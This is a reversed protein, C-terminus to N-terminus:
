KKKFYKNFIGKNVYEFPKNTNSTDDRINLMYLNNYDDNNDNNFKNEYYNFTPIEQILSHESDDIINTSSRRKITTIESKELSNNKSNNFTDEEFNFVSQNNNKKNKSYNNLINGKIKPIIILKSSKSSISNNNKKDFIINTIMTSNNSDSKNSISNNKRKKESFNRQCIEEQCYYQKKYDINLIKNKYKNEKNRKENKKLIEEKSIKNKENEFTKIKSNSINNKNILINCSLNKKMFKNNNRGKYQTINPKFSPKLKKQLEMLKENKIKADYYLREYSKNRQINNEECYNRIKKEALIQTNKSLIIQNNLEKKINDEFELEKYIQMTKKKFDIKEKWKFQEEIFNNIENKSLKIKNRQKDMNEYILNQKEENISIKIEKMKQINLGRKYIPIYNNKYKTLMLNESIKNIEPKDCVENDEKILKKKRLTEIKSDIMKRRLISKQYFDLKKKKEPSDTTEDYSFHTTNDLFSKNSIDYPKIIIEIEKKRNSSNSEEKIDDLGEKKLNINEKSEEICNEDKYLNDDMLNNINFEKNETMKSDISSRRSILSTRKNEIKNKLSNTLQSEISDKINKNSNIVNKHVNNIDSLAMELSLIELSPYLNRTLDNREKM